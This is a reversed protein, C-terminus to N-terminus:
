YAPQNQLLLLLNSQNNQQAIRYPTRGEIDEASKDAGNNVLLEILDAHGQVTALHLATIDNEGRHNIDIAPHNVLVAVIEKRDEYVARMLPTWLYVDVLNPDVNQELLAKAIDVYGKAAAIMLGSWGNKAVANLDAGHEIFLDVIELDGALAAYMIPTGGNGNAKNVDAGQELLYKVKNVDRDRAALMLATKGNSHVSDSEINAASLESAGVSRPLVVVIGISAGLLVGRLWRELYM